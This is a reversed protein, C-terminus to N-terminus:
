SEHNRRVGAAVGRQAECSSLKRNRYVLLRVLWGPTAAFASRSLLLDVSKARFTSPRVKLTSPISSVSTIEQGALLIFIRDGNAQPARVNARREFVCSSFDSLTGQLFVTSGKKDKVPSHDHLFENIFQKQLHCRAVRGRLWRQFQRSTEPHMCHSDKDGPIRGLV